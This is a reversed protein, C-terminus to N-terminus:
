REEDNAEREREGGSAQYKRINCMACIFYLINMLCISSQKKTRQEGPLMLVRTSCGDGRLGSREWGGDSLAPM